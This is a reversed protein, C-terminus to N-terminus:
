LLTCSGLVDLERAYSLSLRVSCGRRVRVSICDTEREFQSYFKRMWPYWDYIESYPENWDNVWSTPPTIANWREWDTQMMISHRPAAAAPTCPHFPKRTSTNNKERACRESESQQPSQPDVCLLAEELSNAHVATLNRAGAHRSLSLFAPLPLIFSRASGFRLDFPRGPDINLM